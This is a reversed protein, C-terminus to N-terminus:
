KLVVEIYKEIISKVYDENSESEMSLVGHSVAFSSIQAVSTNEFWKMAALRKIADDAVEVRIMISASEVDGHENEVCKMAELASTALAVSTLFLAGFENLFM